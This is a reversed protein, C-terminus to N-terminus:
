SWIMHEGGILPTVTTLANLKKWGKDVWVYIPFLLVIIFTTQICAHMHFSM